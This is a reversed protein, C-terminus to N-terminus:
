GLTFRASVSTWMAAFSASSPTDTTIMAEVIGGPWAYGATQGRGVMMGKNDQTYTTANNLITNQNYQALMNGGSWGGMLLYFKNALLGTGFVHSTGNYMNISGTTSGDVYEVFQWGAAATNCDLIHQNVGGAWYVIAYVTFPAAAPNWDATSNSQWYNADTFTNAYQISGTTTFAPNGTKTYVKSKTSVLTSGAFYFHDVTNASEPMLYVTNTCSLIAVGTVGVLSSSIYVVTAPNSGNVWTVLGSSNVTAYSTNSSAWKAAGDLSASEMTAWTGTAHLQLTTGSLTSDPPNVAINSLLPGQPNYLSM